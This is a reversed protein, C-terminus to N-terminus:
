EAAWLGRREDRAESEAAALEGYKFDFEDQRRALGASVLEVAVDQIGNESDDTLLRVLMDGSTTRGAFRMRANKGLVLNSVFETAQDTILGDDPVEIGILRLELQNDGISMVVLDARRVETIKGYASDGAFAPLVIISSMVLGLYAAPLRSIKM